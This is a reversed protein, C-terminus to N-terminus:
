NCSYKTFIRIPSLANVGPAQKDLLAVVHSVAAEVESLVDHGIAFNMSGTELLLRSNPNLEHGIFVTKGALKFQQIAKGIGINGGGVNYIGAPEGHDEIYRVVNQYVYDSDDNSNVREDVMLKPFESRLIRRFGLEREEQGRYPASYVLLVKGERAGIIQGMLYAATAGASTQDSGVYLSRGSTPLDTTLCVVPIDRAVVNRIARNIILDERAVIVLADAEAASREIMNAFKVPDTKSTTVAFYTSAVDTRRVTCDSVAAELTNSFSVGSDCLFTIRKESQVFSATDPRRLRELASLVKLRTVERVNSRGNLVRDVTATGMGTEQAIEAITPGRWAPHEDRIAAPIQREM